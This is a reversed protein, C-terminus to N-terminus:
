NFITVVATLPVPARVIVIDGGKCLEGASPAPKDIPSEGAGEPVNMRAEVGLHVFTGPTKEDNV